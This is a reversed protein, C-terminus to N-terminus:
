SPRSDSFKLPTGPLTPWKGDWAIELFLPKSTANQGSAAIRIHIPSNALVFPQSGSPASGTSLRFRDAKQELYGLDCTETDYITRLLQGSNAPTWSLWAPYVLPEPFFSGDPIRRAIQEMLVRADKAPSWPRRNRIKLHFYYAFTQDTRSVLQGGPDNLSLELQPGAFKYRFYDGWIALVAVSVTGIATFVVAIVEVVKWWCM